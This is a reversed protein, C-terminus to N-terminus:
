SQLRRRARRYLWDAITGVMRGTEIIDSIHFGVLASCIGLAATLVAVVGLAIQTLLTEAGLFAYGGAACGVAILAIGGWTLWRAIREGVRAAESAIAAGKEAAPTAATLAREAQARGARLWGSRTDHAPQDANADVGAPPNSQAAPSRKARDAVEM